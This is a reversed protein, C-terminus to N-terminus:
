QTMCLNDDPLWDKIADEWDKKSNYLDDLIDRSVFPFSKEGLYEGLSSWSYDRLFKFANNKNKIGKEKWGSESDLLDM